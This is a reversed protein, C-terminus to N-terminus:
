LVLPVEVYDTDGGPAFFWTEIAHRTRTMSPGGGSRHLLKGDFLLADGARFRPTRWGDSGVIEDVVEPGVSWEYSASGTGTPVIEDLRRPVVDLSPAREGCDTLSLWINLARVHSGLFAGDQHWEIGNEATGRRMTWKDLSLIPAQGLYDQAIRDIGCTAFVDAVEFM